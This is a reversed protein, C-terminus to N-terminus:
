NNELFNIDSEERYGVVWLGRSKAHGVAKRYDDPSIQKYIILRQGPLILDADYIKDQNKEYIDPWLLPNRYYRDSISWLTDNHNVEHYKYSNSDSEITSFRTTGEIDQKNSSCSILSLVLLLSFLKLSNKKYRM